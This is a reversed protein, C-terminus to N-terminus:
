IAMELDDKVKDLGAQACAEDTASAPAGSVGVGGLLSGGAQIPIGGPVMMLGDIRGIPTAARAGLTSTAANFSVATYAKQQSITATLPAALTDRLQVQIRGDRDVLTVSIQIGQRRCSELAGHAITLATDLTLTGVKVLPAEQAFGTLPLLAVGLLAVLLKQSHM